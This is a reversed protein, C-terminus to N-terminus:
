NRDHKRLFVPAVYPPPIEVPVIVPAPPVPTIVALLVPPTVEPIVTLNLRSDSDRFPVIPPVITPLVIAQPAATINGTTRLTNTCCDLPLAFNFAADGPVPIANPQAVTFGTYTVIKDVGAAPTDFNGTGVGALSVGAPIPGSTATTKFVGTFTATTTGDATKSAVEPYVLMFNTVPGGTGTFDLSYATPTAYNVPNYFISVPANPGTVTVFTGAIGGNVFNVTGGAPDPGTAASGSRLTLGLPVGLNSLDQGAISSGRTLTMIPAGGPNLLNSLNVDRGACLEINGDTVTIAAGPNALTRVVNVDRGASLLVSGDTLTIAARVNVDRGCCAVLNGRTATIPANINVDRASNLTLTTSLLGPPTWLAGSGAGIPDNVNIDGQGPTAFFTTPTNVGTVATSITVNNNVLLNTLALGPIDPTAGGINFDVPDILWTGTQGM